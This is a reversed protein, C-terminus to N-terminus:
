ALSHFDPAAAASRCDPSWLRIYLHSLDFPGYFTCTTHFDPLLRPFFFHSICSCPELRYSTFSAPVGDDGVARTVWGTVSAAFRKSWNAKIALNTGCGASTLTWHGRHQRAM